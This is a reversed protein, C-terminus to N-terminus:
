PTGPAKRMPPAKQPVAFLTDELKMGTKINSLAVSTQGGQIDTVTWQRLAVQPYSFTILINESMRNTGSRAHLVLADPKREIALVNPSRKLDVNDSLLLGLPNDSISYHDVTNLRSNRVFITGGTAVILMVSPPRYEFRLRGPRSIYFTGQSYTAQPSMQVFDATLTATANLWASIANLDATQEDNFTIRRQPLMQGAGSLLPVACLGAACLAFDRRTQKM